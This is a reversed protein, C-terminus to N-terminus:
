VEDYTHKLAEILSKVIRIWRGQTEYYTNSKCLTKMDFAECIMDLEKDIQMSNELKKLDNEIKKIIIM